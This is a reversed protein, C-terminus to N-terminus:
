ASWSWLATENVLVLRLLLSSMLKDKQICIYFMESLVSAYWIYFSCLSTGFRSFRQAAPSSCMCQRRIYEPSVAQWLRLFLGALASLRLLLALVGHVDDSWFGACSSALLCEEACSQIDKKTMSLCKQYGLMWFNSVRSHRVWQKRDTDEGGRRLFWCRVPDTKGNWERQPSHFSKQLSVHLM